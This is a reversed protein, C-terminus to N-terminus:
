PLAASKAASAAAPAELEEGWAFRRHNVDWWRAWARHRRLSTAGLSEPGANLLQRLMAEANAVRWGERASLEAVLKPAARHPPEGVVAIGRAALGGVVWQWRSLLGEADFWARAAAETALPRNALWQLSTRVARRTAPDADDLADALPAAAEELLWPRVTRAAWTRLAGRQDVDLRAGLEGGDPALLALVEATDVPQAVQLAAWALRETARGDAAAHAASWLLRFVGPAGHAVVAALAQQRLPEEEHAAAWVLADLALTSEGQFWRLRDLAASRRDADAEGLEAVLREIEARVEHDWGQVWPWRPGDDSCGALRDARSCYLRVHLHDDHRGSHGPERLLTRARQLIWEPEGRGRAHALLTRVLPDALYLHQVQVHTDTLLARVFHWMRPADFYVPRRRWRGEGRADVAVFEDPMIPEGDADILYLMVDADRGSRHSHSWRMEGGQRLSLNGIRVPAGAHEPKRDLDAAIRLVLDVLGRTAWGTGRQAVLSLRWLGPARRPLEVGGILGGHASDGLSLSATASEALDVDALGQACVAGPLAATLLVLLGVCHTPNIRMAVQM